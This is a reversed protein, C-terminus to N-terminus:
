GAGSDNRKSIGENLKHIEITVKQLADIYGQWYNMEKLPSTFQKAAKEELVWTM